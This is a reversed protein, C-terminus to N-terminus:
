LMNLPSNLCSAQLYWVVTPFNWGILILSKKVISLSQFGPSIIITTESTSHSYNGIAQSRLCLECPNYENWTSLQSTSPQERSRQTLSDELTLTGRLPLNFIKM